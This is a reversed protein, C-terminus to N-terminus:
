NIEIMYDKDLDEITDFKEGLVKQWIKIPYPSDPIAIKLHKTKYDFGSLRKNYDVIESFITRIKKHDFLDLQIGYTPLMKVILVNEKALEILDTKNTLNLLSIKHSLFKECIKSLIDDTPPNKRSYPSKVQKMTLVQNKNNILYHNTGFSLESKPAAEIVFIQHPKEFKSYQTYIKNYYDWWEEECQKYFAYNAQEHVKASIKKLLAKYESEDLIQPQNKFLYNPKNDSMGDIGKEYEWSFERFSAIRFL